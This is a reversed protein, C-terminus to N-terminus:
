AARGPCSRNLLDIWRPLNPVAPRLCPWSDSLSEIHRRTSNRDPDFLTTGPKRYTVVNGRRFSDPRNKLRGAVNNAQM